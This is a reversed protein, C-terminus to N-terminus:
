KKYYNKRFLTQYEKKYKDSNNNLSNIYEKKTRFGDQLSNGRNEVTKINQVKNGDFATFPIGTPNTAPLKDFTRGNEKVTIYIPIEGMKYVEFAKDDEYSRPHTIPKKIITMLLEKDQKYIYSVVLLRMKFASYCFFLSAAALVINQIKLRSTKEKVFSALICIHIFACGLIYGYMFRFDPASILSFLIGAVLTFYVLYIYSNKTKKKVLSYIITAPSLLVLLYVTWNLLRALALIKNTSFEFAFIDLSLNRGFMFNAFDHIYAQQLILTTSPMKWDFSFLDIQSIPYVLYGSIYINRICWLSVILFSSILIFSSTRYKKQRIIGILVILSVLCLVGTSLKFTILTVPLLIGMLPQEKIWNPNFITKASFYFICLIPIIDTSSNDLLTNSNLFLIILLFLFSLSKVSCQNRICFVFAWCLLFVYLLGQLAYIGEGFIFRFSFISSLLLYNSNFGFRDELNGLGPVIAFEENWRINQYHYFEADFSDSLFLLYLFVAFISISILVRSITSMASIINRIHSYLRYGREKNRMWYITSFILYILLIYQNSPFWLSTLQLPILTFCMGMLFTDIINYKENNRCVKNYLLIFCDGISFLTYFIIIWSLLIAIM